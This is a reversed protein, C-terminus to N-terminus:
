PRRACGHGAQLVAGDRPPRHRLAHFLRSQRWPEQRESVLARALFRGESVTFGLLDGYFERAEELKDFNFGFHGLRRIKFPRELLVGGVDYRHGNLSM